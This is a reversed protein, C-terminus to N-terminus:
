GIWRKQLFVKLLGFNENENEIDEKRENLFKKLSDYQEQSMRLWVM